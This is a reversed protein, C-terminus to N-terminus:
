KQVAKLVSEYIQIPWFKEVSFSTFKITGIRLKSTFLRWNQLQLMSLPKIFYKSASTYIM